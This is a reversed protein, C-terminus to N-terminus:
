GLFIQFPTYSLTKSVADQIAAQDEFISKYNLTELLATLEDRLKDIDAQGNTILSEGNLTVERGPVPLTSFKSREYGLLIKANAQAYKRIWTKGIDNIEDFNLNYLGADSPGSVLGNGQSGTGGTYNPNATFGSMASNGGIGIQDYYFYWVSGPTGYYNSSNANSVTQPNSPVPYITIRKTGNPGGILRYSYESARVKNRVKMSQATLITDYVPMVAYMSNGAFSAGFETFALNNQQSLPDIGTLNIFSPTYWLVENVERGAAIFYDQTGSSLSIFDKKLERESNQATGAQESFAQAITKEFGFNNSIFKLTFDIDKPLGLMQSIKNKLSWNNIYSSYEEIAEEVCEVLQEDVLEVGLLPEGLKRRIRRFLRSVESQTMGTLCGEATYEM